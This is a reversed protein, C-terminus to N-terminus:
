FGPTASGVYDQNNTLGGGSCGKNEGNILTFCNYSAWYNKIVKGEDGDCDTGQCYTSLAYKPFPYNVDVLEVRAEVRRFLDNARGTSDVRSQVGAYEVTTCFENLGTGSANPGCTGSASGIDKYMKVSFSTDIGEYPTSITLYRMIDSAALNRLSGDGRNPQAVPNPRNTGVAGPLEIIVKCAYEQNAFTNTGSADAGTPSCKVEIPSNQANVTNGWDESGSIASAAFGQDSCGPTNVCNRILTTSQTSGAEYPRLLLLGRNTHSGNNKEFSSLTFGGVASQVLGVQLTPAYTAQTTFIPDVNDGLRKNLTNGVIASTVETHTGSEEIAKTRDDRNFWSIEIYRVPSAKNIDTSFETRLPIVKFDSDKTVTGLYEDVSTDVKVCTYAQDLSGAFNTADNSGGYTSQIPTEYVNTDSLSIRGLAKGVINCDEEADSDQLVSIVRSCDALSSSGHVVCNNFKLLMIKADEIGALSSDYASQSLDYNTSSMINSLMISIFGVMMIGLLMTFFMVMVFSSAGQRTETQMSKLNLTKM